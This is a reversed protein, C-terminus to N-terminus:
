LREREWHRTALNFRAAMLLDDVCFKFFMAGARHLEPRKPGQQARKRKRAGYDRADDEKLQALRILVPSDILRCTMIEGSHVSLGARNKVV